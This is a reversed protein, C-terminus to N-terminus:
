SPKYYLSQENLDTCKIDTNFIAM